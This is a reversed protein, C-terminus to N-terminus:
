ATGSKRLRRLAYFRRNSKKITHKCHVSLAVIHSMVSLSSRPVIELATLDDVFKTNVM